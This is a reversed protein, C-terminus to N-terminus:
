IENLMRRVVDVDRDPNRKIKKGRVEFATIPIVILKLDHLPILEVKRQDYLRRQLGRHVGSVTMVNPKDFYPTPVYHQSEMIEVVLKLDECYGDVPLTMSRGTRESLDGRLWDFRHERSGEVGLIDDCFNLLYFADNDPKRGKGM